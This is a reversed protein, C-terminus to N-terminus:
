HPRDRRILTLVAEREDDAMHKWAEAIQSLSPVTSGSTLAKYQWDPWIDQPAVDMYEAFRMKWETNLALYGRLYQSVLSPDVDWRAALEKQRLKRGQRKLRDWHEKLLRADRRRKEPSVEGNHSQKTIKEAM